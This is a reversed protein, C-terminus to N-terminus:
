GAAGDEEMLGEGLEVGCRCAGHGRARWVPWDRGAVDEISMGTVSDRGRALDGLHHGLGDGDM